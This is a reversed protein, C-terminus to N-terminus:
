GGYIVADPIAFSAPGISVMYGDAVRATEFALDGDAESMDDSIPMGGDYLIARSPGGPLRRRILGGTLPVSM